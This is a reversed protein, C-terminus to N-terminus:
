MIHFCLSVWLVPLVYLMVSGDSRRGCTIPDAL